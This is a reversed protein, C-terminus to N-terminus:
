PGASSERAVTSVRGPSWSAMFQQCYTPATGFYRMCAASVPARNKLLFSKDSYSRNSCVALIALVAVISIGAAGRLCFKPPRADPETKDSWLLYALSAVAIWVYMALGTYWPALLSRFMSVQLLSLLGFAAIGIAPVYEQHRPGRLQRWGILLELALLVMGLAGVLLTFPTPTFSTNLDNAFARGIGAVVFGPNFIHALGSGGFHDARMVYGYVGISVAGGLIVAAYHARRKFGLLLMVAPFILWLTIGNAYSFSAIFGGAVAGAVSRTHGPWRTLVWIGLAFGFGSLGANITQLPYEFVSMQTVSFAMLSLFPLLVAAALPVRSRSRFTAADYFLLLSVFDLLLSGFLAPYLHLHDFRALVVYVLSPLAVVHGNVYVDRPLHLWNYHGALVQGLFRPLLGTEDNSPIDVGASALIRAIRLMPLLAAALAGAGMAWMLLKKRNM